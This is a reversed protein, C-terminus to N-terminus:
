EYRIIDVPDTRAARLTQWLVVGIALVMVLGAGLIFLEARM